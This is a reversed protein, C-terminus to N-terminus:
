YKDIPLPVHRQPTRLDIYKAGGILSGLEKYYDYLKALKEEDKAELHQSWAGIEAGWIIEINDKAYLIIHAFRSDERGKFNSVDISDIEYLLPKDPTVLKDMRDLRALVDVAAALDERHWVEGVPPIKTISYLGKVNVIPIDPMPIFDLVVMEADVYFKQLGLKVLAIPKRYDAEILIKDHTTQVRVNRLWAIDRALDNQILRATDEEPRGERSQWLRTTVATIRDRLPQNVWVPLDALEIYANGGALSINRKVYKDLFVFGMGLAACICIVALVKLFVTLSQWDTSRNQKQKSTSTKFSIRKTKSKKKKRRIAMIEYRAERKAIRSRRM